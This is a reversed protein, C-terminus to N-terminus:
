MWFQWQCGYMMISASLFQQSCKPIQWQSKRYYALSHSPFKKNFIPLSVGPTHMSRLSYLSNSTVYSILSPNHLSLVDLSNQHFQIFVIHWSKQCTLIIFFWKWITLTNNLGSHNALGIFKILSIFFRQLLVFIVFQVEVKQRM